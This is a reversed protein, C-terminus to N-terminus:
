GEDDGVERPGRNSKYEIENRRFVLTDQLIEPLEVPGGVRQAGGDDAQLRPVDVQVAGAPLDADSAERGIDRQGDRQQGDAGQHILLDDADRLTDSDHKAM